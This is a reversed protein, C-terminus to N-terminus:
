DKVLLQFVGGSIERDGCGAVDGKRPFFGVM